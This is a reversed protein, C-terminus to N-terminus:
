RLVQYFTVIKTRVMDATALDFDRFHRSALHADFAARDDSIEWLFVTDPPGEQPLAVDFIKCGPEVELSTRANARMLPLFDKLSGPHLTFTVTLAFTV